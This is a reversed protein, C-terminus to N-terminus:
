RTWSLCHQSQLTLGVWDSYSICIITSPESLGRQALDERLVRIRPDQTLDQQITILVGDEIFLLLDEASPRHGHLRYADTSNFTHLIM